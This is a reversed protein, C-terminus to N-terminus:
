PKVSTAIATRATPAMAAKVIPARAVPAKAVPARAVKAKAVAVKAFTATAVTAAAGPTTAVPTTPSGLNDQIIQDILKRANARMPTMADGSAAVPSPEDKGPSDATVATAPTVAGGQSVPRETVDRGSRDHTDVTAVMSLGVRLPHERIQDADLAIRVPVRQVIKIWNGTANQAPLIAFASGTGAALGEIRGKYTVRKGYADAILEVPQGLRMDRLQGEKFNADVWVQDLPVVSMLPAGAAIRQGVQVSKRAVYGSAPAHITLRDVTLMAERVRAAAALVNPHNEITTGETLARNTTLQERAGDVAAKAAAGAAIAAAEAARANSVATRAHQLEEGSVAGSSALGTRRKLDAQARDLDARARQADAQYRKVDALRAEIGAALTGNNAYTVRVERVTQALQAKAQELAVSADAPDLRVLAQGAEVYQTDDALVATTTGSVQPTIQIINGQVYADDTEIFYQGVLYWHAGWALGVAAVVLLVLSLAVVRSRSRRPEAARSAQGPASAQDPRPAQPPQPPLPTRPSPGAPAASAPASPRDSISM